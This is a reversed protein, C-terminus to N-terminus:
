RAVVHWLSAYRDTWLVPKWAILPVSAKRIDDQLVFDIDPTLIMWDAAYYGQSPVDASSILAAEYGLHEAMGIGVPMLDLFQNSLHLLLVGHPKLLGKYLDGAEATLFHVPISGSSFVDVAIVDYTGGGTAELEREMLVRGDGVATEVTGRCLYLYMFDHWASEVVEPNIEFFRLTDGPEGYAAVTGTGLGVVGVRLGAERRPFHAFVLGIGSEPGYYSVPKDRRERSLYEFGHSVRGHTMERVAGVEDMSEEVRLVGYFNRSVRVAGWGDNQIRSLLVAYLVILGALLPTGLVIVRRRGGGFRDWLWVLVALTCCLALSVHFEWFGLFLHPALVAVFVGGLAGGTAVMLYFLTLWRPHPKLRALEGHVVMCAAFLVLNLSVAHVWLNARTDLEIVILSGATAAVLLSGFVRRSYRRPSDFAIIFTLLYVSLPLIWLFPVVSVEISSQNTTGMLFASGSAALLVWVLVRGPGPRKVSDTESPSATEIEPAPKRSVAFGCAATGAAFVLYAGSWIWALTGADFVPEFLFPFTLLALLSGANSLAYLRFPSRAPFRHYFWGQLLPGTASLALYPLGVNATLLLLIHLIPNESGKPKWIAGDPIVPLILLSLAVVGGHFVAQRPVRLRSTLIHAYTYGGLLLVQFFLLATTWVSPGGGFWPLIFKALLPQVQFLLFASLFITLAFLIM